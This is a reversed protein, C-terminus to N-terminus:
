AVRPVARKPRLMQKVSWDMPYVTVSFGEPGYTNANPDTQYANWINRAQMLQAQQYRLPVPLPLGEADVLAPAYALVQGRAVELLDHLRADDEPAGPWDARAQDILYWASATEEVPVRM